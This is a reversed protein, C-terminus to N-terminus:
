RWNKGCDVEFDGVHEGSRESKLMERGRGSAEKVSSLAVM